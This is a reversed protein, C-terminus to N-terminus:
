STRLDGVASPNNPKTTDLHLSKLLNQDHSDLSLTRIPFPITIGVQDFAMKINQIVQSQIQWWRHTSEIWFRVELVIASSGFEKAIVEPAPESVVLKNAKVAKTATEIAVSLDTAYHVGVQVTIRRFSNATYNKIVNTLMEFNPVVLSLGDFTQIDTTRMDINTIRGFHEGVKIIDDIKFKQQTLIVVGAIINGLFDKLAFGLGVSLPGLIWTLDVGLLALAISAFVIIFGFFISREILLLVEKHVQYKNRKRIRRVVFKALIYALVISVVFVFLASSWQLVDGFVGLKDWITEETTVARQAVALAPTMLTLLLAFLRKM